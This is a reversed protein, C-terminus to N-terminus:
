LTFVIYIFWLEGIERGDEIGSVEIEEIVVGKGEIGEKEGIEIGKGGGTEIETAAGEIGTETRGTTM